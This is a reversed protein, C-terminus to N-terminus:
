LQAKGNHSHTHLRLEDPPNLNRREVIRDPRESQEPNLVQISEAALGKAREPTRV